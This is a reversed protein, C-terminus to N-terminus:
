SQGGDAISSSTLDIERAFIERAYVDLWSGQGKVGASCVSKLARTMMAEEQQEYVAARYAIIAAAEEADKDHCNHMASEENDSDWLDPEEDCDADCFDFDLDPSAERGHTNCNGLTDWTSHIPACHYWLESGPASTDGPSDWTARLPTCRDLLEHDDLVITLTATTAVSSEREMSPCPSQLTDSCGPSLSSPSSLPMFMAHSQIWWTRPQAVASAVGAFSVSQMALGATHFPVGSGHGGPTPDQIVIWEQIGPQTASRLVATGASTHVDRNVASKATGSKRKRKPAKLLYALDGTAPAILSMCTPQTDREYRIIRRRLVSNSFGKLRPRKGASGQLASVLPATPPHVM